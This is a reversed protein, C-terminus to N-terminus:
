KAKQQTSSTSKRENSKKPKSDTFDIVPKIRDEFVKSIQTIKRYTEPASAFSEWLDSLVKRVPIAYNYPCKYAGSNLEKQVVDLHHTQSYLNSDQYM